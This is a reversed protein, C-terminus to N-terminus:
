GVPCLPRHSRVRGKRPLLHPFARAYGRHAHRGENAGTPLAHTTRPPLFIRWLKISIVVRLPSPPRHAASLAKITARTRNRQRGHQLFVVGGRTRSRM